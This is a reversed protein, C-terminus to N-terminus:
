ISFYMGSEGSGTNCTLQVDIVESRDLDFQNPSGPVKKALYIKQTDKVLLAMYSNDPSIAIGALAIKEGKIHTITKLRRGTRSEWIMMDM